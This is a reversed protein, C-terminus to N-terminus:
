PWSTIDENFKFRSIKGKHDKDTLNFFVKLSMTNPDTTYSLSDTFYMGLEADKHGQLSTILDSFIKKSCKELEQILALRKSEDIDYWISFMINKKFIKDCIDLLSKLSDGKIRGACLYSILINCGNEDFHQQGFGVYVVGDGSQM